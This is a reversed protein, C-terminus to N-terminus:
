ENLTARLEALVERAATEGEGLSSLARDVMELQQGNRERLRRIAEDYTHFFDVLEDGRRLSGPEPLRGKGLLRFQRKMKFIPGAVRHTLVIGAIGVLVVFAGLALALVVLTTKQSKRLAKAQRELLTAQERVARHQKELRQEQARADKDFAERLVPNDGYIPDKVINMQVVASVKRSEELVERGQAV